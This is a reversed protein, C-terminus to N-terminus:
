PVFGGRASQRERPGGDQEVAQHSFFAVPFPPVSLGHCDGPLPLVSGLKAPWGSAVCLPDITARQFVILSISHQNSLCSGGRMM